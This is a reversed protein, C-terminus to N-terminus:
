KRRASRGGGRGSSAELSEDGGQVKERGRCSRKSKVKFGRDRRPARKNEDELVQGLDSGIGEPTLRARGGGASMTASFRTAHLSPLAKTHVIRAVNLYGSDVYTPRNLPSSVQTAEASSLSPRVYNAIEM